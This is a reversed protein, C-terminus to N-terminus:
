GIYEITVTRTGMQTYRNFFLDTPYAIRGVLSDNFYINDDDYGIAVLCHENKMYQFLTDTDNIYWTLGEESPVMNQTAWVIVPVDDDLYNQIDAITLDRHNEVKFYQQLNKEKLVSNIANTITQEYCGLGMSSKPNGIFAENPHSSSLIADGKKYGIIELNDKELYDDIFSEVSIDIGYYQLVTTTSVSECGTPYWVTQNIFPVDIVSAFIDYNKFTNLPNPEYRKINRLVKGNDVFTFKSMGIDIEKSNDLSNGISMGVSGGVSTEISKTSMVTVMILINIAIVFSCLIYFKNSKFANM